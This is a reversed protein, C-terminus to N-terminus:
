SHHRQLHNIVSMGKSSNRVHINPIGNAMIHEEVIIQADDRPYDLCLCCLLDCKILSQIALILGSVLWFIIACWSDFTIFALLVSSFYLCFTCTFTSPTAFSYTYKPIWPIILNLILILVFSSISLILNEYSCGVGALICVFILLIICILSIRWSNSSPIKLNTDKLGATSVKLKQQFEEVISDIDEEESSEDSVLQEVKAICDVDSATADSLISSEANMEEDDHNPLRVSPSSPEDKLLM